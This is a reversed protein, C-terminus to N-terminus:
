SIIDAVEGLSDKLFFYDKDNFLKHIFKNKMKSFVYRSWLYLIDAPVDKIWNLIRKDEKSNIFENALIMTSTIVDKSSLDNPNTKLIEEKTKSLMKWYEQFISGVRKGIIGTAYEPSNTSQVNSSLYEWSRPSPFLTSPEPDETYLTDPNIKLFALVRYDIRGSMAGWNLFNEVSPLYEIGQHIRNMIPSQVISSSASEINFNGAMIIDIPHDIKHNHLERSTLLKYLYKQIEPSVLHFDDLFLIDCKGQKLEEFWFPTHFFVVGDNLSPLGSATEGEEYLRIELMKKDVSKAVNYVIESKGIGPAGSIMINKGPEDKLFEKLVKSLDSTRYM